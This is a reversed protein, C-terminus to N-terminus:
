LIQADDIRTPVVSEPVEPADDEPTWLDLVRLAAEAAAIREKAAEYGFRAEERTRVADAWARAETRLAESANYVEALLAERVSRPHSADVIGDRVRADNVTASDLRLHQGRESPAPNWSAAVFTAMEVDLDDPAAPLGPPIAPVNEPDHAGVPLPEGINESM